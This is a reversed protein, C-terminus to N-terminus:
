NSNTSKKGAQYGANYERQKSKEYQDYVYGGAAGVVAGGLAGWIPNAGAIAVIGAGAAAGIAGGSLTRQQTDSMGSCGSLALAAIPVLVLSRKM